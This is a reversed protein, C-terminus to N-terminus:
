IESEITDRVGLLAAVGQDDDRLFRLLGEVFGTATGILLLVFGALWLGQPIWLPTRLPTNALANFRFSEWFEMGGYIVLLAAVVFLSLAAVLDLASRVRHPLLRYVVDIRIHSRDFFALTCGISTSIALAYGSLEDAGGLSLSFVKRMFVEACVLLSAALLVYAAALTARRSWVSLAMCARALSM